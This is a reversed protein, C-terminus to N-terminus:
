REREGGREREVEREREREGVRELDWKTLTIFIYLTTVSYWIFPLRLFDVTQRGLKIIHTSPFAPVKALLTYGWCQIYPVDWCETWNSLSSSFRLCDVKTLNHIGKSHNISTSSFKFLMYFWSFTYTFIGKSILLLQERYIWCWWRGTRLM